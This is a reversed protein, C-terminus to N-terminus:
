LSPGAGECTILFCALFELKGTEQEWTGKKEFNPTIKNNLLDFCTHRGVTGTRLRGVEVGGAQPRNSTEEKEM